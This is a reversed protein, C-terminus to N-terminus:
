PNVTIPYVQDANLGIEDPLLFFYFGHPSLFHGPFPVNEAFSTRQLRNNQDLTFEDYDPARSCYFPRPIPRQTRGTFIGPFDVVYPVFPADNNGYVSRAYQLSPYLELGLENINGTAGSIVTQPNLIFAEGVSQSTTFGDFCVAPTGWGVVFFGHNDGLLQCSELVVRLSNIWMYDGSKIDEFTAYAPSSQPMIFHDSFNPLYNISADLTIKDTLGGDDVMVVIQATSSNLDSGNFWWRATDPEGSSSLRLVPEGGPVLNPNILGTTRSPISIPQGSENTIGQPCYRTIGDIHDTITERNFRFPDPNIGQDPLAVDEIFYAVIGSHLRWAITFNPPDPCYRWWSTDQDDDDCHHVGPGSRTMPMGGMWISESIFPASGTSGTQGHQVAGTYDFNFYRAGIFTDLIPDPTSYLSKLNASVRGQGILGRSDNNLYSQVIAYYAAARRDYPFTIPDTPAGVANICDDETTGYTLISGPASYEYLM